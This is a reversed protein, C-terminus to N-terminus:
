DTPSATVKAKAVQLVGNDDYVFAVASMNEVVWDDAATYASNVTKLEGEAISFEQGWTGNVACRFVHNHVYQTDSITVNDNDIPDHREQYAVIGDEILWIQLNGAVTASSGSATVSIAIEKSGPAATAMVNIELPATKALESTVEAAWDTHLMAGHRNVLGIPQFDLGFHAFYENGTATTLKYPTGKVSKGFPGSYIGVAIVKDDGYQEQLQEIVATARPCNVCRQGTYDEILVARNVEAPKVYILRDDPGKEDCGVLATAALLLATIKNLHKM